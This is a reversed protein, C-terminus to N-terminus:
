HEYIVNRNKNIEILDDYELYCVMTIGHAVTEKLKLEIGITGEQILNLHGCSAQQDDTLDFAFLNHGQPYQGWPKIGNDKDNFLISTGQLLTIYGQLFHHKEFDLEITDFPTPIGNKKLGISSLNFNQFNFPNRSLHGGYAESHVLGVIIRRPLVGNIINPESLDSRGAATTFFKMEIRRVPYKANSKLLAEEHALRVNSSVEAHRAFLIVSDFSIHYKKTPDVSMLCFKPDARDLKITLKSSSLILRNQNFLESHLRGITEFSRSYKTHEFRSIAGKNSRDANYHTVDVDEPNILDKFFLGASLQGSKVADSYSLLTEIIAKYAYMSDSKSIVIDNLVVEINKFRSAHFYNVPFVKSSAPIRAHGDADNETAPLEADAESLIRCKSYLFISSPDIYEKDSSTIRFEIPSGSDINTIPFYKKYSGSEISTQTPPISFLDLESKTCECSDEHLLSM